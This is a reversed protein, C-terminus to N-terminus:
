IPKLYIKIFSHVPICFGIIVGRTKHFVILKKILQIFTLKGLLQFENLKHIESCTIDAAWTKTECINTESCM